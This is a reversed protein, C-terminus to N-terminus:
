CSDTFFIGDNRRKELSVLRRLEESALGNVYRGATEKWVERPKKKYSNLEVKLNDIFEKYEYMTNEAM